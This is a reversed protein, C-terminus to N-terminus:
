SCSLNKDKAARFIIQLYIVKYM